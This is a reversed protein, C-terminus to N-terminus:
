KCNKFFLIFIIIYIIVYIISIMIIIFPIYYGYCTLIGIVTNELITFFQKWNYM